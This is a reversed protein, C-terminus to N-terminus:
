GEAEPTVIRSAVAQRAPDVAFISLRGPMDKATSPLHVEAASFLIRGDRMCKIRHFEQFILGALDETKPFEWADWSYGRRAVTVGSVAASAEVSGRSHGRPLADRALLQGKADCVERRSLTGLRLPQGEDDSKAGPPPTDGEALPLTTRAFVLYRGDASWEPAPAVFEAVARPA